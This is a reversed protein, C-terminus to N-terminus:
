NTPGDICGEDVTMKCAQYRALCPYENGVPWPCSICYLSMNHYIQDRSNHNSYQSFYSTNLNFLSYDEIHFKLDLYTVYDHCTIPTIYTM